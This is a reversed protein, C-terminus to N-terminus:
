DPLLPISLGSGRGLLVARVLATSGFRNRIEDVALDLAIGGRGDFPLVLQAPCDDQLNGV